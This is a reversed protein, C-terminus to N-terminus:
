RGFLRFISKLLGPRDIKNYRNLFVLVEQDIFFPELVSFPGIHNLVCYKIFETNIRYSMLEREAGQFLSSSDSIWKNSRSQELMTKITTQKDLILMYIIYYKPIM